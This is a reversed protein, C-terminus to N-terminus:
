SIFFIKMQDAVCMDVGDPKPLDLLTHRLRKGSEADRRIEALIVLTENEAVVFRHKVFPHLFIIGRKEPANLLEDFLSPPVDHAAPIELRVAIQGCALAKHALDKGAINNERFNPTSGFVTM